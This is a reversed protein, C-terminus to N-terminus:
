EGGSSGIAFLSQAGRVYMVGQSIAPTAMLLEGIENTAVHEFTDGAQIVLIDGDESSLYIHGDAAVPSASFGSGGHELRQRYLEEGTDLDYADFVGNNALVYLRGDTIIPTPMYSGRRLKMWAIAESSTEGKALTLDGRSGHRIVHIPREPARGSAVVILGDAAIPTPATIKSSPGLTWLEEGTRPDYGRIAKAGNSVLEPGREGEIVTPTGWSPLEDRETKWVLDGTVADLALLFSDTQTDAQVIVLGDWVIPSSAPGWEYTPVDYAGMDLRGLDASWLLDGAVTYAYLGQSGFAAVVVRGDTAPTSNAYTSKIHRKDIPELEAAVRQWILEGTRKDYSAVVFRHLTRDESSDGDGYLGPKFSADGRRSVASTVFVQNGWVVPSSHALGPVATKWLLNDGTSADWTLPLNQDAAVGGASPGRFSGWSDEASTAESLQPPPQARTVAIVREPQELLEDARRWTSGGLIINRMQCADEVPEFTVARESVDFTYTASERCGEPAEQSELRLAGDASAEWSGSLDPWNASKLEFDGGKTMTLEFGGFVLPTDILYEPLEAGDASAGTALALTLALSIRTPM